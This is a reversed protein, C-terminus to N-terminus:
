RDFLASKVVAFYERVCSNVFAGSWTKSPIGSALLGVRKALFKARFMHFDSTVIAIRHTTAGFHHDLVVKSNRFNELTSTSAEEKYVRETSIGQAVLFRKMAEAESITEGLGQGGSVVAIAKPNSKLYEAARILRNRLTTPIWEGKIGAGLVILYDSKVNPDESAGNWIMAEVGIFTTLFCLLLILFFRRVKENPFLRISTFLKLTSVLVLVIGFGAPLLNGTNLALGARLLYVTDLICVIGVALILLFSKSTHTKPTNRKM